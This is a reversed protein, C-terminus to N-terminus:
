EAGERLALARWYGGWAELEAWGAAMRDRWGGLAVADEPALCVMEGCAQPVIAPFAPPAPAPGIDAPPEIQAFGGGCGALAVCAAALVARM